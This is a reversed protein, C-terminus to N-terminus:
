KELRKLAARAEDAPRGGLTAVEALVAKAEAGGVEELVQVARFFRLTDGALGHLPIRLGKATFKDAIGAARTRAEPSEANAAAAQVAPLARIGQALLAKTAAERVPFEDSGLEKVWKAMNIQTERAEQLGTAVVRVGKTGGTSLVRAARYGDAGDLSDLDAWATLLEDNSPAQRGHPFSLDWVTVVEEAGASVIRSGDPFIGLRNVSGFGTVFRRVLSRTAVEWVQVAGSRGASGTILLRGDPSFAAHQFNGDDLEVRDVYFSEKGQAADVVTLRASSAAAILKGDPSFAVTGRTGRQIRFSWLSDDDGAPRRVPWLRLYADRGVVALKEGDPAFAVALGITPVPLVRITTGTAADAILTRQADGSYAVRKGDASVAVSRCNAAHETLRRAPTAPLPKTPDFDDYILVAEPTAVALRRGGVAAVVAKGPLTGVPTATAQNLPWYFEADGALVFVSRGDDTPLLLAADPFTDNDAHLQKGTTLDWIRVRLGNTGTSAAKTGDPSVAWEGVIGKGFGVWKKATLDYVGVGSNGAAAIRDNSIWVRPNTAGSIEAAPKSSKPNDVDWVKVVNPAASSTALQKGDPSFCLGNVASGHDFTAMPKGGTLRYLTVKGDSAALAVLKGDPHFAFRGGPPLELKPLGSDLETVTLMGEAGLTCVLKGNASIDFASGSGTAFTAVHTLTDPSLFRIVGDASVALMKGDPTLRMAAPTYGLQLTTVSEGTAVNWVRLAGDQGGSIVRKGDPSFAVCTPLGAHRLRSDGLRAIAGLPMSGAVPPALKPPPPKPPKQQTQMQQLRLRLLQLQLRAEIEATQAALTGGFVFGFIGATYCLLRSVRM